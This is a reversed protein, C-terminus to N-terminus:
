KNRLQIQSIKDWSDEVKKQWTEYVFPHRDFQHKQMEELGKSIRMRHWAFNWNDKTRKILGM